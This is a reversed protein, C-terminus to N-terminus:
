PHKLPNSPKIQPFFFDQSCESSKQKPRVEELMSCYDQGPSWQVDLQYCGRLWSKVQMGKPQAASDTSHHAKLATSHVAEPQLIVEQENYSFGVPLEWKACSIVCNTDKGKDLLPTLLEWIFM